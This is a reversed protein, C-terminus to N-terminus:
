TVYPRIKTLKQKNRTPEQKNKNSEQETRTPEPKTKTPEHKLARTMSIRKLPLWLVDSRTM